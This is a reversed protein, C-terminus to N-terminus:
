SRLEEILARLRAAIEDLKAVAEGVAEREVADAAELLDARTREFAVLLARKM